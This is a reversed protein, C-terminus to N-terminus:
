ASQPTRTSRQPTSTVSTLEHERKSLRIEIKAIEAEIVQAAAPNDMHNLKALMLQM